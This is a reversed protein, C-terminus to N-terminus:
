QCGADAKAKPLMSKIEPRVKAGYVSELEAYAKCAQGPQNLKMLSQGLYYLSDQARGGGPDSRYNALFAEAAARPQNEELLARGILNRAWSVRKHNPYQATFATLSKVAGALGALAAFPRHFGRKHSRPVNSYEAVSEPRPATMRPGAM